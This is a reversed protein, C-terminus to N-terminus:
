NCERKDNEFEKRISRMIGEGDADTLLCIWGGKFFKELAKKSLIMGESEVVGSLALRYDVVAREIVANALDEYGKLSGDM